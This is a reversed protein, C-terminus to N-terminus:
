IKLGWSSSDVTRVVIERTESTKKLAHLFEHECPAAVVMNTATAVGQMCDFQHVLGKANLM